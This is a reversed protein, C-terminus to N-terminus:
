KWCYLLRAAAAVFQEVERCYPVCVPLHGLPGKFKECSHTHVSQQPVTKGPSSAPSGTEEGKGRKGGNVWKLERATSIVM